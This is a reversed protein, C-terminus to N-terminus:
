QEDEPPAMAIISPLRRGLSPGVRGRARYWDRKRSWQDPRYVALDKPATPWPKFGGEVGRSGAM